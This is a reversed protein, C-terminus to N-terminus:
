LGEKRAEIMADAMNYAWEAVKADPWNEAHADHVLMSQMARAAFDDRLEKEKEKDHINM